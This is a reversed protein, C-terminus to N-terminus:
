EPRENVVGLKALLRFLRGNDMERALENELQDKAQRLSDLATLMRPATWQLLGSVTPPHPMQAPRLM